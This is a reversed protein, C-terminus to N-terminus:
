RVAQETSPVKEAEGKSAGYLVDKPTNKKLVGIGEVVVEVVGLPNSQERNLVLNLLM